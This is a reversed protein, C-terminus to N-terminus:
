SVDNKIRYIRNGESLSININKQKFEELLKSQEKEELWVMAKTTGIYLSENKRIQPKVDPMKSYKVFCNIRSEDISYNELEFMKLKRSNQNQYVNNSILHRQICVSVRYM